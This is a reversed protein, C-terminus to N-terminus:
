KVEISPNIQLIDQIFGLKEKPSIIVSDFKNYTIEIRDFSAAPSSLPSNTEEIRKIQHIDINLKYLFGSRIKLVDGEIIYYTNVFLQLIFVFLIIILLYAYWPVGDIYLLISVTSFVILLINLLWYSIGSKYKKKL